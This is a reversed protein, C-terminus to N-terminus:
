IDLEEPKFEINKLDKLVDYSLYNDSFILFFPPTFIRDDNKIQAKYTVEAMILTNNVGVDFDLKKNDAFILLRENRADSGYMATSGTSIYREEKGAKLKFM